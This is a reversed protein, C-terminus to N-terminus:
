WVRPKAALLQPSGGEVEGAGNILGFLPAVAIAAALSAGEGAGESIWTKLARENDPFPNV